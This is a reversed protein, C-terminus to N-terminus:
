TTELLTIPLESGARRPGVLWNRAFLFPLSSVALSAAALLQVCAWARGVQRRVQSVPLTGIALARGLRVVGKLDTIATSVIDVSSDPDDVWDVPVEHIRFGTREALVLLETDFFWGNDEVLPLLDQAVDKRIAKFGCQADSFRAALASRLLLNYCRSIIERKAGRIVYSGRSLRSGIALDSHGSLLPAVLPLLAALDTSLDIDMYALVSAESAAWVAGIARGKGKESLHLVRVGLLREALADALAGTGDISANDAIVISFSFPFHQTLYDHLRLVSPELDNVENYVPLAVEVAVALPNPDAAAPNVLHSGRRQTPLPVATSAVRLEGGVASGQGVVVASNTSSSM